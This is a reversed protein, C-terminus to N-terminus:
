KMISKAVSLGYLFSHLECARNFAITGHVTKTEVFFGGKDADIGIALGLARAHASAREYALIEETFKKINM